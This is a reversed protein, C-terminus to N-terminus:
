VMTNQSANSFHFSGNGYQVTGFSLFPNLIRPQLQHHCAALLPLTTSSLHPLLAEQRERKQSYREGSHFFFFYNNLFLRFQTWDYTWQKQSKNKDCQSNCFWNRVHVCCKSIHTGYTHMRCNKPGAIHSQVNACKLVSKTAFHCFINM